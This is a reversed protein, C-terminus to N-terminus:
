RPTGTPALRVTQHMLADIRQIWTRWSEYESVPIVSQDFVVTRKAVVTRRDRFDRSIDIQARGFPGGIVEGGTPLTEFDYGQPL